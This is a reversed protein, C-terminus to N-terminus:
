LRGVQELSAGKPIEVEWGRAGGGQVRRAAAAVERASVPGGSEGGALGHSLRAERAVAAVDGAVLGPMELDLPVASGAPLLRGLLARRGAGSLPGVEIEQELRGARRLAAPLAEPRRAAAAVAVRSGELGDLAAMLAAAAEAAEVNSTQENSGFRLDAEDLLLVAPQRARATALAASLAPAGTGECEVLRGAFVRRLLRTKGCGPPGWLLVGRACGERGALAGAAARRVRAELAAIEPTSKL